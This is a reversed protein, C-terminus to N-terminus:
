RRSGAARHGSCPYDLCSCRCCRYCNGAWRGSMEINGAGVKTWTLYQSMCIAVLVFCLTAVVLLADCWRAQVGYQPAHGIVADIGAAVFAATWASTVMAPLYIGVPFIGVTSRWLSADTALSNFTLTM